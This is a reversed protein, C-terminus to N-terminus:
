LGGKSFIEYILNFGEAVNNKEADIRDYDGLMMASANQFMYRDKERDELNSPAPIVDTIGQKREVGDFFLLLDKSIGLKTIKMIIDAFITIRAAYNPVILDDGNIVLIGPEIQYKTIEAVYQPQSFVLAPTSVICGSNWRKVDIYFKNKIHLQILENM